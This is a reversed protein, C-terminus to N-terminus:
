LSLRNYHCKHRDGLTDSYGGVVTSGIFNTSYKGLQHLVHPPLLLAPQLVDRQQHCRPGGGCPEGGVVSDPGQNDHIIRKSSALEAQINLLM